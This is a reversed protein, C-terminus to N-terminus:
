RVEYGKGKMCADLVDWSTNDVQVCAEYDKRKSDGQADGPRTYRQSAAYLVLQEEWPACGGSALLLVGLAIARATM